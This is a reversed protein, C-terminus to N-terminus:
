FGIRRSAFKLTSEKHSIFLVTTGPFLNILRPILIEEYVRDLQSSPEDLLLIDPRRFIVRLMSIIQKDGDPLGNSFIPTLLKHYFKNLWDTLQFEHIIHLVEEQTIESEFLTINELLSATFITVEAKVALILLSSRDVERGNKKFYRINGSQPTLSGEILRLVTTKGAGTKGFIGVREGINISLNYNNLISVHKNADAYSFHVNQLNISAGSNAGGGSRSSEEDIPTRNVNFYENIRKLAALRFQNTEIQTVISQTADQIKLAILYLALIQQEALKLVSGIFFLILLELGILFYSISPILGSYSGAQIYSVRLSKSNIKNKNIFFNPNQFKFLNVNKLFNQVFSLYINRITLNQAWVESSKISLFNMFFIHFIAYVILILITFYSAQGAAGIAFCLTFFSSMYGLFISAPFDVLRSLDGDLREVVNNVNINEDTNISKRLIERRYQDVANIGMFQSLYGTLQTILELVIMLALLTVIGFIMKDASYSLLQTTHLIITINLYAIGLTSIIAIVVLIPYLKAIKLLLTTFSIWQRINYNKKIKKM